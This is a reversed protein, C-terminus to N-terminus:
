KVYCQILIQMNLYQSMPVVASEPDSVGAEPLSHPMLPTLAAAAFYRRIDSGTQHCPMPSM